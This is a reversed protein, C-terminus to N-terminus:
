EGAPVVQSYGLKVLLWEIDKITLKNLAESYIELTKAVPEPGYNNSAGVSFHYYELYIGENKTSQNIYTISIETILLETLIPSSELKIGIVATDKKEQLFARIYNDKEAVVLRSGGVIFQGSAYDVADVDEEQPLGFLKILDYLDQRIVLNETDEDVDCEIEEINLLLYLGYDDADIKQDDNLDVAAESSKWVEYSSELKPGCSILFIAMVIVLTSVLIKKKM